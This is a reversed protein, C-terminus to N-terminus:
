HDPSNAEFVGIDYDTPVVMTTSTKQSEDFRHLLSRVSESRDLRIVYLASVIEDTLNRSSLNGSARSVPGHYKFCFTDAVIFCQMKLVWAAKLLTARTIGSDEVIPNRAVKGLDLPISGRGTAGMTQNAPFICKSRDLWSPVANRQLVDSKM